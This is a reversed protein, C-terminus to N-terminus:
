YWRCYYENMDCCLVVDSVEHTLRPGSSHLVYVTVGNGTYAYSYNGDLNDVDRQDIVDLHCPADAQPSEM